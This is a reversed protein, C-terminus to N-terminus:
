ALMRENLPAHDGSHTTLQSGHKSVLQSNLQESAQEHFFVYQTGGARHFGPISGVPPDSDKTHRDSPGGKEDEEDLGHHGLSDKGPKASRGRDPHETKGEILGREKEAVEVGMGQDPPHWGPDLSANVATQQQRCDHRERDQGRVAPRASRDLFRRQPDHSQERALDREGENDEGGRTRQNM